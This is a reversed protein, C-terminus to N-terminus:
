MDKINTIIEEMEEYNIDDNLEETYNQPLTKQLHSFFKCTNSFCNEKTYKNM